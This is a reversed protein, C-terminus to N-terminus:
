ARNKRGSASRIGAYILWRNTPIPDHLRSREGLVFHRTDAIRLSASGLDAQDPFSFKLGSAAAAGARHHAADLTM